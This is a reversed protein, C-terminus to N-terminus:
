YESLGDRNELVHFMVSNFLGVQIQQGVYAVMHCSKYLLGYQVHEAMISSYVRGM